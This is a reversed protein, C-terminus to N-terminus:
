SPRQVRPWGSRRPAVWGSRTRRPSSSCAPRPSGTRSVRGTRTRTPSSAPGPHEPRARHVRGPGLGVADAGRVRERGAGPGALVHRVVGRAHGASAPRAGLLAPRGNGRRLVLLRGLRGRRDVRCGADDTRRGAPRVVRGCRSARARRATGRRVRRPLGTLLLGRPLRLRGVAVATNFPGGGLRPALAPLDGGDDAAGGQPVLDILAEGAVVIVPPEKRASSHLPAATSSYQPATCRLPLPRPM